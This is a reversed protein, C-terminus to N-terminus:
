YGKIKAESLKFDELTAPECKEPVSQQTDNLVFHMLKKSKTDIKYDTVNVVDGVIWYGTYETIRVYQISMLKDLSRQEHWKLKQFIAPCNDFVEQYWKYKKFIGFPENTEEDKWNLRIITGLVWGTKHLMFPYNAIVKYRPKYFDQIIKNGEIITQKDM